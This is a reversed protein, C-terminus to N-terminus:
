RGRGSPHNVMAELRAIGDRAWRAHQASVVSHITRAAAAIAALVLIVGIFVGTM